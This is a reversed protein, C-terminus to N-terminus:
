GEEEKQDILKIKYLEFSTYEEGEFWYKFEFNTKLSDRQPIAVIFM